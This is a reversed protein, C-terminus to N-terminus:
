NASPRDVADVVLIELDTKRSELKLGLQQPLASYIAPYISTEHKEAADVFQLKFDYDGKLGTEDTVVGGLIGAIARTFAAMPVHEATLGQGGFQIGSCGPRPRPDASCDDSSSPQFKPGNRALVLALISTEKTERHVRLRFRDALLSKLMALLDATSAGPDGKAEVNFRDTGAWQPGGSIRASDVQYALTVLQKLTINTATFHGHANRIPAVTYWYNASVSPKISAVDFAPASPQALAVASFMLLPISMNGEFVGSSNIQVFV